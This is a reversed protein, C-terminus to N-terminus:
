SGNLGEQLHRLATRVNGSSLISMVFRRYLASQCGKYHADATEMATCLGQLAMADERKLRIGDNLSEPLGTEMRENQEM